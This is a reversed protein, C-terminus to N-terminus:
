LRYKEKFRESYSVDSAMRERHMRHLKLEPSKADVWFMLHGDFDDEAIGHAIPTQLDFTGDPSTARTALGMEYVRDPDLLALTGEYNRLMRLADRNRRHKRKRGM